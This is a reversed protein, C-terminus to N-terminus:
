FSSISGLEGRVKVRNLSSNLIVYGIILMAASQLLLGPLSGNRILLALDYGDIMVNRLIDIGWTM